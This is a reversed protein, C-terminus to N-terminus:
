LPVDAPTRSIEVWNTADYEFTISRSYGTAPQVWTDLKFVANWTATGLAGGSNNRIRVTIREGTTPSTPANITFAAGDTVTVPFSTSASADFTMSASYAPAALPGTTSDTLLGYGSDGLATMLSTTAVSSGRPGTVTRKTRLTQGFFGLTVDAAAGGVMVVNNPGLGIRDFEDHSLTLIPTTGANNYMYLSKIGTGLFSLSTDQLIQLGGSVAKWVEDGDAACILYPNSGTIVGGVTLDETVALSAMSGGVSFDGDVVLDSNTRLVAVGDRYLTADLGARTASDGFALVGDHRLEFIFNGSDDDIAAFQSAGTGGRTVIQPGLVDGYIGLMFSDSTPHTLNYVGDADASVEPHGSIVMWANTYWAGQSNIYSGLSWNAPLSGGTLDRRYFKAM